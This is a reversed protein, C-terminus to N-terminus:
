LHRIRTRLGFMTINDAWSKEIRLVCFFQSIFQLVSSFTLWVFKIILDIYRACGITYQSLSVFYPGVHFTCPLNMKREKERERKSSFEDITYIFIYTHACACAYRLCSLMWEVKNLTFSIWVQNMCLDFHIARSYLRERMWCVWMAVFCM